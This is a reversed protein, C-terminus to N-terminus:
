RMLHSLLRSEHSRDMDDLAFSLALELLASKNEIAVGVLKLEHFKRNFRNLIDVSLYFGAKRKTDAANKKSKVRGARGSPSM